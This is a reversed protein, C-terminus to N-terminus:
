HFASEIHVSQSRPSALQTPPTCEPSELCSNCIVQVRLLSSETKHNHAGIIGQFSPMVALTILGGSKAHIQWNADRDGASCM